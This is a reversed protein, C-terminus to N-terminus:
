RRKKDEGARISEEHAEMREERIVKQQWELWQEKTWEKPM